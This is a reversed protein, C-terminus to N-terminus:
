NGRCCCRSPHCIAPPGELCIKVQEQVLQGRTLSVFERIFQTAFNQRNVALAGLTVQQYVHQLNDPPPPQSLTAVSLLANKRWVESRDAISPADIPKAM